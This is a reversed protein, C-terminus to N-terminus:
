RCGSVCPAIRLQKAMVSGSFGPELGVSMSVVRATVAIVIYDIAVLPKGGRCIARGKRNHHRHSVGMGFIAVFPCALIRTGSSVGPKVSTRLMEIM